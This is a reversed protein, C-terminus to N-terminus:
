RLNLQTCYWDLIASNIAVNIV